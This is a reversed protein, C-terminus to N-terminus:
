PCRCEDPCHPGHVSPDCCYDTGPRCACVSGNCNFCISENDSCGCYVTGTSENQACCLKPLEPDTCISNCLGDICRDGNRCGPWQCLGAEAEPDCVEECQECRCREINAHWGPPCEFNPRCVLEGNECVEEQCESCLPPIADSCCQSRPQCTGNACMQEGPCCLAQSVCSGDPCCKGGTEACDHPCIQPSQRKRKKKDSKKNSSKKKHNKKGKGETHPSAPRQREARRQRKATAEVGNALEFRTVMGSFLSGALVRLAARRTGGGAALSRAIRDLHVDDM